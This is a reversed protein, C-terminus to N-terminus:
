YYNVKLFIIFNNTSHFHFPFCLKNNRTLQVPPQSHPTEVTPPAPSPSSSSWGSFWSKSQNVPPTIQEIPEVSEDPINFLRKLKKQDLKSLDIRSFDIVHGSIDIKVKKLDDITSINAWQPVMLYAIGDFMPTFHGNIDFDLGTHVASRIDFQPTRRMQDPLRM